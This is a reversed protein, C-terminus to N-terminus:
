SVRTRSNTKVGQAQLMAVGSGVGGACPGATGDQDGPSFRLVEGPRQLHEHGRGPAPQAHGHAIEGAEALGVQLPQASFVAQQLRGGHLSQVLPQRLLRALCTHVRAPPSDLVEPPDLGHVGVIAGVPGETRLEGDERLM